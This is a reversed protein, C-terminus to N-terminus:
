PRKAPPVPQGSATAPPQAAVDSRTPDPMHFTVYSSLKGAMFGLLAFLVGLVAVGGLIKHKWSVLDDVKGKMSSISSNVNDFGAKLEGFSGKLEMIAQLTFSHDNTGYGAPPPTQPLSPAVGDYAQASPGTAKPRRPPTSMSGVSDEGM